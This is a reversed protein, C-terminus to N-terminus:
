KGKPTFEEDRLLHIMIRAAPKDFPVHEHGKSWDYGYAYALMDGTHNYAAAVIPMSGVAPTVSFDGNDLELATLTSLRSRWMGDWFALGGDGGGTVFTGSAHHALTNVAYVDQSRDRVALKPVGGNGKGNSSSNIGTIGTGTAGRMNHTARHCRFSFAAEKMGASTRVKVKEDKEHIHQVCVRGDMCGVAFAPKPPLASTARGGMATPMATPQPFFSVVRPMMVTNSLEIVRYRVFPSSLAFVHARHDDTCVVVQSNNADM